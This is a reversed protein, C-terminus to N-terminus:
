GGIITRGGSGNGQRFNRRDRRVCPHTRCASSDAGCGAAHKIDVPRGTTESRRSLAGGHLGEFIPHSRLSHLGVKRGFGQDEAKFYNIQPKVTEIGLSNIYNFADLTLLLGGGKKVFKKITLIVNPNTEDASYSLSDPKHFWLLDFDNLANPSESIQKFTIPKVSFVESNQLLKFASNLEPVDNFDTQNTLFGVKIQSFVTSTFFLLALIAKSIIKISTSM